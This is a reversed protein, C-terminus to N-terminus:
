IEWKRMVVFEKRKNLFLSQLGKYHLRRSIPSSGRENAEPESAAAAILSYRLKSLVFIVDVFNVAIVSDVAVRM